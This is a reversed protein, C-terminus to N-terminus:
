FNDDSDIISIVISKSNQLINSLQQNHESLCTQTICASTNLTKTWLSAYFVWYSGLLKGKHCNKKSSMIYAFACGACTQYLFRGM